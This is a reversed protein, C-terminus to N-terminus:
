WFAMNSTFSLFLTCKEEQMKQIVKSAKSLHTAQFGISNMEKVLDSISKSDTSGQIPQTLNDLDFETQGRFSINKEIKNPSFFEQVVKKAKILDFEKCSFVDIFAQSKEPYTHISIHSEAIIVFGTIGSEDKKESKHSIVVPEILRKMEIEDSIKLLFEKVKKESKLSDKSCGSCDFSINNGKGHSCKVEM